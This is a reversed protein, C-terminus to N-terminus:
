DEFRQVYFKVFGHTKLITRPAAYQTFKDYNEISNETKNDIKLIGLATRIHNQLQSTSTLIDKSLKLTEICFTVPM